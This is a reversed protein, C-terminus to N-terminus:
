DLVYWLKWDKLNSQYQAPPTRLTDARLWKAHGDFFTVTGGGNHWLAPVGYNGMGAQTNKCLKDSGLTSLYWVLYYGYDDLPNPKPYQLRADCMAISESPATVRAMAFGFDPLCSNRGMGVFIGEWGNPKVSKAGADPLDGADFGTRVWNSPERFVLQNKCYPLLLRPWLEQKWKGNVQAYDWMAVFTEDYDQAYMTIATGIQRHNSLCSTQRAKERAQAFVPFLIAALIAIIAIVVLLEILTFAARRGNGLIPTTIQSAM